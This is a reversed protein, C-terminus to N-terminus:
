KPGALSLLPTAVRGGATTLNTVDHFLREFDSGGEPQFISIGRVAVTEGLGGRLLLGCSITLVDTCKM